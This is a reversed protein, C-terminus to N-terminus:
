QFTETKKRAHSDQHESLALYFGTTRFIGCLPSPQLKGRYDHENKDFVVPQTAEWLTEIPLM